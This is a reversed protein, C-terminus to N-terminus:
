LRSVDAHIIKKDGLNFESKGPLSIERGSEDTLIIRVQKEGAAISIFLEDCTPNPYISFNNESTGEKVISTTISTFFATVGWEGPIFTWNVMQMWSGPAGQSTSIWNRNYLSTNSNTDIAIGFFGNIQSYQTAGAYVDGANIIINSSTLDVFYNYATDPMGGSSPNTIPSPSIYISSTPPGSASASADSYVVFRFPAPNLANRFYASIGTLRAPYYPPTFRVVCQMYDTGPYAGGAGYQSEFDGDHYRVSDPQATTIISILSPLLFLPFIKKM